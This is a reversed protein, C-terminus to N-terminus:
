PSCANYMSDTVGPSPVLFQLPLVLRKIAFLALNQNNLIMFALCKIIKLKHENHLEM